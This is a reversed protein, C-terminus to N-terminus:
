QITQNSLICVAAYCAMDFLDSLTDQVYFIGLMAHPIPYNM